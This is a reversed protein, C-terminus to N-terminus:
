PQWLPNLKEVNRLFLNLFYQPQFNNTCVCVIFPSSIWMFNLLIGNSNCDPVLLVCLSTPLLINNLSKSHIKKHTTATTLKHKAHRM